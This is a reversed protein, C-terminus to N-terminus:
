ARLTVDTRMMVRHWLSVYGTSQVKCVRDVGYMAYVIVTSCNVVTIMIVACPLLTFYMIIRLPPIMLHSM